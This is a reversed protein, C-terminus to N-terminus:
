ESPAIVVEDSGTLAPLGEEGPDTYEAVFVAHLDDHEPDHGGPVSTVISGSCGNATTQPHGHEDHGLVYTVSVRNCDVEQDDSVEVQFQVTDGFHFDGGPAPDTTLTVQPTDNGVVVDVDASAHKGRGKGGHDTVTLTARYAGVEDYTHTATPGTADFIGDGDFDWQYTLEDGDADTTGASDFAVTLPPQGSTQDATIAPTPTHNGSRAVYDIRSVQAEENESFYGDGYELMYLSGNKGFELDMVNDTAFASLVDEIGTLEGKKDLRMAKVYDRGWEAFLPIGDYYAPWAGSRPSKDNRKDFAYAPGAMPAIGGESGLEPFEESPAYSYWVTPQTVPPLETLGTNHRSDNVPKACDFAPGSTGTEFDYDRYPMEATACLPWGYNAPKSVVTWKGQGAPGREPDASSADPSYDAVFVRDTKPDIEIRFPNRLGMAYIEPRTKDAGPEFLNGKPITYGGGAKPKIRLLKGRLDNTNAATRRSDFAPSRNESDDLPAYGDSQFPDTDDGTALILNGKSDFVIDGGVHCCRGRDVPVDMIQQETTLDIKGNKYEYRSLRIAGKFPEFDAPTGHEPADGENVDPTSPDDVPTDLPPSYYAYIWRNRKGDFGPDLAISQLGEEDHQYVDFEAALSNVGTEADNLWVKGARTSHLVDGDPLVALDMPEGPRDNLTVKEFASDPPPEAAPAADASTTIPLVLLGSVVTTAVSWLTFRHM